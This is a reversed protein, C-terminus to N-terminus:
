GNVPIKIMRTSRRAGDDVATVQVTYTGPQNIQILLSNRDLSGTLDSGDPGTISKVRIALGNGAHDVASIYDNLCIMDGVEPLVFISETIEPAAKRGEASYRDFDQYANYDMSDTDIRAGIIQFAGRNGDGDTIGTFVLAALLVVALGELLFKGYTKLVQEM